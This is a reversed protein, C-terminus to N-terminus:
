RRLELFVRFGYVSNKLNIFPKGADYKHNGFTQNREVFHVNPKAANKSM